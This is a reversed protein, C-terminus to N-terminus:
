SLTTATLTVFAIHLSLKIWRNLFAAVMLFGATVFMGQVLFSHPDKLRLWALTAVLTILAIFFLAPRESANSADVNSWQGRRVQRIMLLGIPVIVAFIVLLVAQFAQRSAQHIAPVAALLTIMTFPHAVISIWRAFQKM